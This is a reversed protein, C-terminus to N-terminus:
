IMSCVVVGGLTRACPSDRPRAPTGFTAILDVSRRVLEACALTLRHPRGGAHRYEFAINQGELYGLDRLSQRFVEWIPADDIIGITAIEHARAAFPWAAVGGLAAVFERRGLNLAM